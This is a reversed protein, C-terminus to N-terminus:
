NDTPRQVSDIVLVDVPARTSELKLGLQEQLATFLSPFRGDATTDDIFRLDFDFTGPLATRDIVRRGLLPSLVAALRTMSAGNGMMGQFGGRVGCPIQGRVVRETRPVCRGDPVRLRPGPKGDQRARVLAYGPLQRTETRAKLAFREVLLARLMLAPDGM